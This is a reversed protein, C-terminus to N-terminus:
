IWHPPALATSCVGLPPKLAWSDTGRMSISAIITGSAPGTSSLAGRVCDVGPSNLFGGRHSCINALGWTRSEVLVQLYSCPNTHTPGWVRGLLWPKRLKQTLIPPTNAWSLSLGPCSAPTNFMWSLHTHVSPAPCVRCPSAFSWPLIEVAAASLPLLNELAQCPELVKVPGLAGRWLTQQHLEADRCGEWADLM